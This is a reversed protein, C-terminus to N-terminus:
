RERLCPKAGAREDQRTHDGRQPAPARGGRRGSRAHLIRAGEDGSDLIIGATEFADKITVPVGHLPGRAEGRALAADLSRAELRAADARLQVIANLLPNIAEIRELTADVIEEASVERDRIARALSTASADIIEDM